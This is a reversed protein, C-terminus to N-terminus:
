KVKGYRMDMVNVYNIAIPLAAGLAIVVVPALNFSTLNDLVYVLAAGSAAKFMGGLPSDALWIGIKIKMDLM